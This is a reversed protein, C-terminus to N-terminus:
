FGGHQAHSAIYDVAERRERVVARAVDAGWRSLVADLGDSVTVYLNGTSNATSGSGIEDAELVLVDRGQQALLLATTLGTIGGGIVLVDCATDSQLLAFGPSGATARWLSVTDM